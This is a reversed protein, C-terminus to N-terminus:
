ASQTQITDDVVATGERGEWCKVNGGAGVAVVRFEREGKCIMVGVLDKGENKIKLFSRRANVTSDIKSSSRSREGKGPSLVNSIKGLVGVGEDEGGDWVHITSGERGGAVVHGDYYGLYDLNLATGGRYLVVWPELDPLRTLRVNTSPSASSILLKPRGKDGGGIAMAAIGRKHVKANNVTKWNDQIDIVKVTGKDDTNACLYEEDAAFKRVSPGEDMYLKKMNRVSFAWIRPGETVLCLSHQVSVSTLHSSFSLSCITKLNSANFLKLTRTHTLTILSTESVLHSHTPSHLSPPLPITSLPLLRPPSPPSSFTSVCLSTATAALLCTFPFNPTITIFNPPPSLTAPASPSTAAQNPTDPVVTKLPAESTNSNVTPTTPVINSTDKKSALASM